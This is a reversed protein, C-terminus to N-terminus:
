SKRKGYQMKATKVWELEGMNNFKATFYDFTGKSDIEVKCFQAKGRYLGQIYINDKMDTSVFKSFDINSGGAHQLWLLNENKDYKALFLDVIGESVLLQTGVRVSDSFFGTIIINNESDLTVYLNEIGLKQKFRSALSWENDAALISGSLTLWISVVLPISISVKM